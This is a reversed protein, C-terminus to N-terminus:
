VEKPKYVHQKNGQSIFLYSNITLNFQKHHVDSELFIVAERLSQKFALIIFM